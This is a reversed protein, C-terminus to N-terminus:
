AKVKPLAKEALRQVATWSGRTHYGATAVACNNAIEELAKKMREHEAQTRALEGKLRDNDRRIDLAAQEARDARRLARVIDDRLSQTTERTM